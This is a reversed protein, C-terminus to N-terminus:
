SALNILQSCVKLDGHIVSPDASHLFRMGKVIDQLVPLLQEGDLFISKNQVVEYLSGLEMFEMILMPEDTKSVGKM